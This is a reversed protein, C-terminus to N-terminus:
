GHTALAQRAKVVRERRRAARMGADYPMSPRPSVCPAASLHRIYALKRWAVIGRPMRRAYVVGSRMCCVVNRTTYLRRGPLRVATMWLLLRCAVTACHCAACGMCWRRAARARQAGRRGDYFRTKSIRAEQEPQPRSRRHPGEKSLGAAARSPVRIDVLYALFV